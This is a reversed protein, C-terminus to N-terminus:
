GRDTARQEQLRRAHGIAQRAQALVADTQEVLAASNARLARAYEKVLETGYRSTGRPVAYGGTVGMFTAQVCTGGNPGDSTIRLEDALHMMLPLGLGLGPSDRRPRLGSGSDIVSVVLTDARLVGAAYIPGPEVGIYAHTVANGAAESLVLAIDDRREEVLSGRALAAAFERRMHGVSFPVAPLIREFIFRGDVDPYLQDLAGAPPADSPEIPPAREVGRRPDTV